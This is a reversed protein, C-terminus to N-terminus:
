FLYPSVLLAVGLSLLGQVVKGRVANRASLGGDELVAATQCLVSLGGWGSLGAMLIFGLRTPPILPTSSFLELLGIGVAAVPGDLHRIPTTLVSFFTVFACIHLMATLATQVSSLFATSLSPPPSPVARRASAPLPRRCLLIGTLLATGVHILWLWVGIRTSSFVGVGLVNILFVPNANNCFLLLREAEAKSVTRRRYLDCTLRAGTPYGGLLGLVLASAGAGGVGFLPEMLFSLRRSLGDATGLSLLLGSVTLFPFLAPIVSHACLSLAAQAAAKTGEADWLFYLLILLLLGSLFARLRKM